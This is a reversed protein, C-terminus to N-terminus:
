SVIQVCFYLCVADNNDAIKDM